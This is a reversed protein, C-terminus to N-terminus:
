ARRRTLFARVTPSAAALALIILASLVDFLSKPVLDESALGANQLFGIFLAAIVVGLPHGGGLLAVAVGLFGLNRVLDDQYAHRWGMVAHTAALGALAGAAAMSWVYARPVRVGAAAAARAGQGVWRWEAGTRTREFWWWTAAAALAALFVSVNASSGAIGLAPLEAGRAIPPGATVGGTFLWTNGIWLAVGAVIANLMIAVIVEHANRYARLAGTLAGIAGGALAAALTCAPIAIVAPTGAPLSAGVAGCALCGAIMQGEGGINFLGARLAVAVALGSFVLPTAKALIQGWAYPDGVTRDIVAIWVDLPSAGAIMILISGAAAAVLLAVLAVSAEIRANM